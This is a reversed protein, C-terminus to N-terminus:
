SFSLEAKPKPADTGCLPARRPGRLTESRGQVAGDEGDPWGAGYAIQLTEAKAGEAHLDAGGISGM